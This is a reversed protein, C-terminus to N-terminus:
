HSFDSEATTNNDNKIQNVQNHPTFPRRENNNPRPPHFNNNQKIQARFNNEEEIRKKYDDYSKCYKQIVKYLKAITSTKTSRYSFCMPRSLTRQNHSNDGSQRPQKSNTGQNPHIKQFIPKPTRQNTTQLIIPRDILGAPQFGQFDVPLNVKLQDWSHKSKAKLLSYWQQAPGKVAM